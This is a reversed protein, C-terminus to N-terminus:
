QTPSDIIFGSLIIRFRLYWKENKHNMVELIYFDDTSTLNLGSTGLSLTIFNDGKKIVASQSNMPPLSSRIKIGDKDYINYQLVSNNPM